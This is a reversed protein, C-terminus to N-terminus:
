RVSPLDSRCDLEFGVTVQRPLLAETGEDSAVSLAKYEERQKGTPLIILAELPIAIVLLFSVNLHLTYGGAAQYYFCESISFPIETGQLYVYFKLRLQREKERVGRVAATYFLVM